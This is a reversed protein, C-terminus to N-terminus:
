ENLFFIFVISLIICLVGVIFVGYSKYYVETNLLRKIGKSKDKFPDYKEKRFKRIEKLSFYISLIGLSLFIFGNKIDDSM